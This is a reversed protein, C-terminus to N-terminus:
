KMSPAERKLPSPTQKESPPPAENKVNKLPSPPTGWPPCRNQHPPGRPGGGSHSVRFVCRSYVYKLKKLKKLKQGFLTM